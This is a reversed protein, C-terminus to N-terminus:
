ALDSRLRVLCLCAARGRLLQVDFEADPLLGAVHHWLPLAREPIDEVVCAGCGHRRMRRLAFTLTALNAHPAHLGDDIILDLPEDIAADLAALSAPETQDVFYTAIREEAFLCGRDVDAGYVRARPLYDRFARLSAGPRGARGMHSPVSTDNTGLGIELTARVQEPEGLLWAYFAANDHVSLKDSGHADLLHGLREARATLETNDQAALFEAVSSVVVEGASGDVLRQLDLLRPFTDRIAGETLDAILGRAGASAPPFAGLTDAQVFGLPRLLRRLKARSLARGGRIGDGVLPLERLFGRLGGPAHPPM